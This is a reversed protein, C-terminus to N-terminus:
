RSRKAPGIVLLQRFEEALDPKDWAEYLEILPYVHQNMSAGDDRARKRGEYRRTLYFEAEEFRGMYALYSGYSDDTFPQKIEVMFQVLSAFTKELRDAEEHKDQIRLVWVLRVTSEFTNGHDPGSREMDSALLERLLSEAREYQGIAQLTKALSFESYRYRGPRGSSAARKLRILEELVPVAEEFRRAINLTDALYGLQLRIRDPQAAYLKRMGSLAERHVDIAEKFKGQTAMANGLYQLSRVTDPHTSGLSERRLDVAIQTQEEARDFLDQQSLIWGLEHRAAAEAEPAKRRAISKMQGAVNAVLEESPYDPNKRQKSRLEFFTSSLIRRGIEARDAEIAAQKEATDARQSQAVAENRSTALQDTLESSRALADELQEQLTANEQDSQELATLRDHALQESEELQQKLDSIQTQLDDRTLNHRQIERMWLVGCTAGGLLLAAIIALWVLRGKTPQESENPAQMHM